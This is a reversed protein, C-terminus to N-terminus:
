NKKTQMKITMNRQIYTPTLDTQRNRQATKVHGVVFGPVAATSKTTKGGRQDTASFVNRGGYKWRFQMFSNIPSTRPVYSTPV